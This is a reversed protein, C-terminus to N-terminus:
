RLKGFIRDLEDIDRVFCVREDEFGFKTSSYYKRLPPREGEPDLLLTAPVRVTTTFQVIREQDTFEELNGSDNLSSEMFGVVYNQDIPKREDFPEGTQPNHNDNHFPAVFSKQIDLRSFVKEIIANMQTIYQAQVKLQYTLENRDPFPIETIEYIPVLPERMSPSRDNRANIVTSTKSSVVKAITIAHAETGLAQGSPNPDTSIRQLSIIPLILVGNADRIGTRKSRSEIGREGAAFKVPVKRREGSPFMVHVDVTRDFWDYIARDITELTVNEYQVQSQVSTV